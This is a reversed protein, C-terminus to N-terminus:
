DSGEIRQPMSRRYQFVQWLYSLLAALFTWQLYSAVIMMWIAAELRYQSSIWSLFVKSVVQELLTATPIGSFILPMLLPGRLMLLVAVYVGLMLLAMRWLADAFRPKTM